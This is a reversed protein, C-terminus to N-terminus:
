FEAYIFAGLCRLAQSVFEPSVEEKNDLLELTFEQSYISNKRIKDM